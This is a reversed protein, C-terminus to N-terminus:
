PAGGHDSRLIGCVDFGRHLSGRCDLACVGDYWRVSPIKDNHTEIQLSNTILYFDHPHIHVSPNQSCKRQPTANQIHPMVFLPNFNAQINEVVAFFLPQCLLLKCVETTFVSDAPGKNLTYFRADTRAAEIGQYVIGRYLSNSNLSHSRSTVSENKM